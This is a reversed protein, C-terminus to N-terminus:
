EDEPEGGDPHVAMVKGDIVVRTPRLERVTDQQSSAAHCAAMSNAFGSLAALNQRTPYVIRRTGAQADDLAVKPPLWISSVVEGPAPHVTQGDPLVTLFFRTDYRRPYGEPTLWWSLLSLRDTDLLLGNATLVAQWATAASADPVTRLMTLHPHRAQDPDIPDGYEDVALLVGTEEYTERIAAALIARTAAPTATRLRRQWVDLSVTNAALRTVDRDTDNVKGGPFVLAGPVFAATAPRELLLTEMRDAADRLMVISAALRVAVAGSENVDRRERGTM